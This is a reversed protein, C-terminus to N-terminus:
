NIVEKLPTTHFIATAGLPHPPLGLDQTFGRFVAQAHPGPPPSLLAWDIGYRVIDAHLDAFSALHSRMLVEPNRIFYYAFVPCAHTPPVGQWYYFSTLLIRDNDNVRANMAQAAEYSFRAGRLQGADVEELTADYDRRAVPVVCSMALLASFAAALTRRRRGSLSPPAVRQLLQVLTAAGIAALTAWAPALTMPVWPVKSSLLSLLLYTPVILLITWAANTRLERARRRMFTILATFILAIFVPGLYPEIRTLYYFWPNAWISNANFALEVHEAIGSFLTRRAINGADGANAILPKVGLYWWSAVVAPVLTICALTGWTRREGRRVAWLLVVALLYFVGTEKFLLALGLCVGAPLPRRSLIFTIALLGFTTVPHDRKIWVDFLISGPMCALLFVSWLAISLGFLRRNLRFLLGLNLLGILIALIETREAFGAQLPRLGLMLLCFLPPHRWFWNSFDDQGGAKFARVTTLNMAEDWVLLHGVWRARLYVFLTMSLLLVAWHVPRLAGRASESNVDNM